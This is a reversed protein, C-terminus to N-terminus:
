FGIFKDIHKIIEILLSYINIVLYLYIYLHKNKFLKLFIWLTLFIPLGNLNKIELYNAIFIMLFKDQRLNIKKYLYIFRIMLFVILLWM